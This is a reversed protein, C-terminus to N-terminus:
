WEHMRSYKYITQRERFSISRARRGSCTRTTPRASWRDATTRTLTSCWRGMSCLRSPRDFREVGQWGAGNCDERFILLDMGAALGEQALVMQLRLFAEKFEDIQRRITVPGATVDLREAPATPQVQIVSARVNM